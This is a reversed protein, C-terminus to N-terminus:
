LMLRQWTALGKKEFFVNYLGDRRWRHHIGLWTHKFKYFYLTWLFSDGLGHTGTTGAPLLGQPEPLRELVVM